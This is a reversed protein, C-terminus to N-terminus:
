KYGIQKSDEETIQNFFDKFKSYKEKTIIGKKLKFERTAIMVNGKVEYNISYDMYDEFSLTKSSPMESFTKGVPITVTMVEKDFDTYNREYYDLNFNRTDESLYDVNYDADTWYMPFIKLNGVSTIANKVQLKSDYLVSDSPYDLGKFAFSVLKGQGKYENGMASFLTKEQEEKTIDRYTDRMGAAHAGTKINKKVITINNGEINIDTIRYINNPKLNQNLHKINSNNIAKVDSPIDLSLANQLGFSSGAFPLNKWTLELFYEKSDAMVKAICHNFNISPLVMDKEGNQRSDILVLNAKLGAEKAMAVFLTSVDKCDGLKANLTKSARQPIHAGQRFSVSSYVINNVIYEYIAKAKITESSKEKGKLAEKLASVVEPESKAKIASLDAYWDAVFKWDPISSIHVMELVDTSTPMLKEAEVTKTDNSEWVYSQFEDVSTIKPQTSGNIVKHEFKKDKPVLLCYKAKQCPMFYNLQFTEWFHNALKGSSYDELRYNLYICDGPELGSFVFDSGNEDAKIKSGNAKIIETKEVILRQSNEYYPINYEKWSEVGATNFIKILVIKRSESGGEPYVIKQDEHHLIMSNEDPFKTAAPSKKAISYIDPQTFYSYIDKKGDKKRLKKRVDYNTPAYYIAKKLAEKSDNEQNMAEYVLGIDSWIKGSYPMSVLVTRLMELAKPYNRLDYYIGALRNNYGIAHPNKECLDTYLKIGKEINNNQSYISFLKSTAEDNINEKLYKEWISQVNKTNKQEQEVAAKLNVFYYSNPYLEYCKNILKFLEETKQKYSLTRITYEHIMENEGYLSKMRDVVKEAADYDEKNVEESYSLQLSLTNDPDNELIFNQEKSAEENNKNSRLKIMLLQHVTTNQPAIKIAKKLVDISEKIKGNHSYINNLLLYHMLSNPNKALEDKFFKEVSHEMMKKQYVGAVSYNQYTASSQTEIPLFNYDTLRVLFNLSNLDSGGVQVLVRNYGKNLHVYYCYTDLDTNREESIGDILADNLWIKLSGSVGACLMVDQETASQVFTQAYFVSNSQNNSLFDFDIWGDPKFYKPTNWGISAGNKNNFKADVQPKTIPEYDKDFGSGSANDFEGAIQWANLHGIKELYKLGDNTKNKYMLNHGLGTNAMAKMRGDCRKDEIMTKLFQVKSKSLNYNYLNVFDSTWLAFIYPSPNPHLKYFSEIYPFSEDPRGNIWLFYAMSLQANADNPNSKIGNQFYEGAAKRDNVLLKEWGKDVQAFLQCQFTIMAVIVLLKKFKM